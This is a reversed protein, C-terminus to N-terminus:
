FNAAQGLKNYLINEATFSGRVQNPLTCDKQSLGKIFAEVRLRANTIHYHSFSLLESPKIGERDDITKAVQQVYDTLNSTSVRLM